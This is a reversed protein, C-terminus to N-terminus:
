KKSGNSARRIREIEKGDRKGDNYGEKRGAEYGKTYEMYEKYEPTLIEPKQRLSGFYFVMYFILAALMAALSGTRDGLVAFILSVSLYVASSILCYTSARKRKAAKIETETM